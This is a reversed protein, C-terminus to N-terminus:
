SADLRSGWFLIETEGNIGYYLQECTLASKAGFLVAVCECWCMAYQYLLARRTTAKIGKIGQRNRNDYWRSAAESRLDKTFAIQETAGTRPGEQAKTENRHLCIGM